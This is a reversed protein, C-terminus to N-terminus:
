SVGSPGGAAGGILKASASISFCFTLCNVSNPKSSSSAVVAIRIHFPSTCCAPLQSNWCLPDHRVPTRPGKMSLVSIINELLFRPLQGEFPRLLPTLVALGSFALYSTVPTLVMRSDHDQKNAGDVKSPQLRGPSGRQESSHKFILRECYIAYMLGQRVTTAASPCLHIAQM